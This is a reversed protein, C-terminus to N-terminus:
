PWTIRYFAHTNPSVTSDTFSTFDGGSPLGNTLTTWLAANINIKRLVSYTNTQFLSGLSEWKITVNGNAAQSIATLNFLRPITGNYGNVSLYFDDLLVTNVNNTGFFAGNDGNQIAETGVSAFVKNLYPSMNDNNIGNQSYDRNGYFNSFLLTRSSAGQAQIWLAFRAEQVTNTYTSGDTVAHTNDNSVDLWCYYNVNTMLGSPNGNVADTLYDYGQAYGNGTASNTYNAAELDFPVLGYNGSADYNVIKIGPGVLQGGPPQAGGLPGTAFGFDTIGIGLDLGSTLPTGGNSVTPPTTLSFRFFLTNVQQPPVTLNNLSAWTIAGQTDYGIPSAVDPKYGSKPSLAENGNVTVVNFKDLPGAFTSGLTTVGSGNVGSTTNGFLGDWRQILNWATSVGQLVKVSTSAQVNAVLGNHATLTFTYTQNAPLTINTSGSAGLYSVDGVGSIVISGPTSGVGTINWSLNVSGGQGIESIGAAFSSVIIANTNLGLGNLGNTMVFMIEAPSLTRNWFGIDSYQASIGGSNAGNRIFGGFTTKAGAVNLDPILWRVGGAASNTGAPLLTLNPYINTNYYSNTVVLPNAIATNGEHDTYPGGIQDGQDYIGDVYVHMDGNTEIETTMMHWAGDCVNSATDNAGQGLFQNFTPTQYTGDSMLNAAVGNPDTTNYNIRGFFSVQYQYAPVQKSSISFFPGSQGDNACEAMLRLETGGTGAPVSKIWFNMTAGRQNAFPLFDGSGDFPNQGTTPYYALTPGGSQNFNFAANSSNIGAHSAAVINAATMNVLTLDRRSVLDPTVNTNSSLVQNLPYYDVLGNTVTQFTQAQSTNMVFAAQAAILATLLVALPKPRTTIKMAKTKQKNLNLSSTSIFTQDLTPNLLVL